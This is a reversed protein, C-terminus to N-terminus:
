FILCFDEGSWVRRKEFRMLPVSSTFLYFDGRSPYRVWGMMVEDLDRWERGAWSRFGDLDRSQLM